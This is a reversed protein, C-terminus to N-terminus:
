WELAAPPPNTLDSATWDAGAKVLDPAAFSTTLALCRAGSAKAAVVGNVADEVLLCQQAPLELREAALLFIEPAAKKRTVLTGDIVIDLLERPFGGERRNGDVKVRDAGSAAALRLGVSRCRAIFDDAGPVPPL